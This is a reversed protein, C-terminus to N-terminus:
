YHQSISLRVHRLTNHRHYVNPYAPHSSLNCFTMFYLHKEWDSPFALSHPWPGPTGIDAGFNLTLHRPWPVSQVCSLYERLFLWMLAPGPNNEQLFKWSALTLYSLKPMQPWKFNCHKLPSAVLLFKRKSLVNKEVFLHGVRIWQMNVFRWIDTPLSYHDVAHKKFNLHSEKFCVNEKSCQM